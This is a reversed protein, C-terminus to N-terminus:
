PTATLWVPAPPLIIAGNRANGPNAVPTNTDPRDEEFLWDEIPLDYQVSAQVIPLSLTEGQRGFTFENVRAALTV